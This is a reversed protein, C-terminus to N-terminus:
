LATNFCPKRTRVAPKSSRQMWGGSISFDGDFALLQAPEFTKGKFLDGPAISENGLVGALSIKPYYEALAQGIRANSAAVRREAAIIDPRRTEL